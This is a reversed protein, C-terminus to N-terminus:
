GQEKAHSTAKVKSESLGLTIIKFKPAIALRNPDDRPSIITTIM